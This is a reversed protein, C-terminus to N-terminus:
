SQRGVWDLAEAATAVVTSGPPLPPRRVMFVAVGLDRAATLKGATMAGGSNKSVLLGIRHERLLAAEQAAPYPGRDLILTLHPPAIGGPPDVARVLFHHRGDGAFAALDGRGTTLFVRDGPWDRVAAAAAGIDAFTQWSPDSEWAPRCLVLRPVGAEAAARAANATIAGAFPHTADVLHTIGEARIFAALGDAGGFGGSRVPGGPLRPQGVRGALSSLVQTGAALLGTALERAEGTGGLILVRV